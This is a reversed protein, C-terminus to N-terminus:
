LMGKEETKEYSQSEVAGEHVEYYNQQELWTLFTQNVSVNIADYM